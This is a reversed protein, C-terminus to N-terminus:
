LVSNQLSVRGLGKFMKTPLIACSQISAFDDIIIEISPVEFKPFRFKQLHVKFCNQMMIKYVSSKPFNFHEWALPTAQSMGSQFCIM